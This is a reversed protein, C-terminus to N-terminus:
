EKVGGYRNLIKDIVAPEQILAIQGGCKPSCHTWRTSWGCCSAPGRAACGRPTCSPGAGSPRAVPYTPRSDLARSQRRLYRGCEMSPAEIALESGAVFRPPGADPAVDWIGYAPCGMFQYALLLQRPAVFALDLITFPSPSSTLGPFTSSRSIVRVRGQWVSRRGPARGDGGATSKAETLPRDPPRSRRLRAPWKRVRPGVVFRGVSQRFLHGAEDVLLEKGMFKAAKPTKHVDPLRAVVRPEAPQRLDYVAWVRTTAAYLKGSSSM